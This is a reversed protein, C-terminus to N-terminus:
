PLNPYNKYYDFWPILECVEVSDYHDKKLIIQELINKLIYMQIGLIQLLLLM